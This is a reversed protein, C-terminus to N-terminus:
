LSKLDELLTELMLLHSTSLPKQSEIWKEVEAIMMKKGREIGELYVRQYIKERNMIHQIAEPFTNKPCEYGHEMKCDGCWDIRPSPVIKIKPPCTCDDLITHGGLRCTKLHCDINEPDHRNHEKIGCGDEYSHTQGEPTDKMM